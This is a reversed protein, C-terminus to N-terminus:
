RGFTKQLRVTYFHGGIKLEMSNMSWVMVIFNEAEWSYYTASDRKPVPIFGDLYGVKGKGRIVLLVSQSWERFNAGNM